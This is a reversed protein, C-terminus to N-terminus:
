GGGEAALQAFNVVNGAPERVILEDAGYFTKRRPVVPEVGELARAVADLDEVEIFLLAGGMPTDALAPVDGQVSARTQYMVEVGDKQLIVFGARDGEPVEVTKTFGLRDVWFPLVPEIEEVYLVPTLKKMAEGRDPQYRAGVAPVACLAALLLAARLPNKVKM